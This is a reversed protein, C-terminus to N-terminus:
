NKSGFRSLRSFYGNSSSEHNFKKTILIGDINKGKSAYWSNNTKKQFKIQSFLNLRGLTPHNYIKYKTVTFKKRIHPDCNFKEEFIKTSNNQYKIWKKQYYYTEIHWPKKKVKNEYAKLCRDINVKIKHHKKYHNDAQNKTSIIFTIINNDVKHVKYEESSYLDLHDENKFYDWIWYSNKKFIEKKICPLQSSSLNTSLTLSIYLFFKKKM